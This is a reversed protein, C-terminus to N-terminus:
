VVPADTAETPDDIFGDGHCATCDEAETGLHFGDDDYVEVPSDAEKGTGSCRACTVAGLSGIRIAPKSM